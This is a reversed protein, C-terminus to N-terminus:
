KHSREAASETSKRRSPPVSLSLWAGVGILFILPLVFSAIFIATSGSM